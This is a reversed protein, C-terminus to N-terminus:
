FGRYDDHFSGFFYNQVFDKSELYKRLDERKWNGKLLIRQVEHAERLKGSGRQAERKRGSDGQAKRAERLGM